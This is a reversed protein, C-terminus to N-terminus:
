HFTSANANDLAQLAINSAAQQLLEYLVASDHEASIVDLVEVEDSWGVIAITDYKALLAILADGNMDLAQIDDGKPAVAARGFPVVNDPTDDDNDAM